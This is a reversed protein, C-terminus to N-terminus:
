LVEFSGWSARLTVVRDPVERHADPPSALSL